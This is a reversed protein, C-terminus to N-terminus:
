KLKHVEMFKNKYTMDIDDSDMIMFYSNCKKALFLKHYGSVAQTLCM